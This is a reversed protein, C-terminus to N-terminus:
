DDDQEVELVRGAANVEIEYSKGDSTGELKYIKQDNEEKIKAKTLSINNVAGKAAILVPVPVESLPVEKEEEFMKGITTCGALGLIIIVTLVGKFVKM